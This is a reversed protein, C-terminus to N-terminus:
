CYSTAYLSSACVNPMIIELQTHATRNHAIGVSEFGFQLKINIETPAIVALRRNNCFIYIYIQTLKTKLM